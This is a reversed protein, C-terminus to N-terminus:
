LALRLLAAAARPSRDAISRAENYDGSVEPPMDPHPLPATSVAPYVLNSLYWLSWEGCHNCLAAQYGKVEKNNGGTWGAGQLAHWYQQSHAGCVPCNFASKGYAPTVVDAM